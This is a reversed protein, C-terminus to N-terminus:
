ISSIAHLLNAEKIKQDYSFFTGIIKMFDTTLDISKRGRVIMSIGKLACTGEM